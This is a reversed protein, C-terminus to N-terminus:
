LSKSLTSLSDNMVTYFGSQEVSLPLLNSFLQLNRVLQDKGSSKVAYFSVADGGCIVNNQIKWNGVKIWEPPLGELDELQFWKDYVIALVINKDRSLQGISQTTYTDEIKLKLVDISALGVLDLLHIDSLFAATGIDNVAVSANLYYKRLFLGMQYQQEYTNRCAIPINANSIRCRYQLPLMGHYLLVVTIFGVMVKKWTLPRWKSDKLIQATMYGIVFLGLAILYAEYRFFHGIKAFQMHILALIVFNILLVNELSWLTKKRILGLLLLIYSGIILALVHSALTMNKFFNLFFGFAGNNIPNIIFAQNSNFMEGVYVNKRLLISNPLWFWGNSISIYQYFILPVIGALALGISLKWRGRLFLFICGVFLIAYSEFRVMTVGITLMSLSTICLVDNSFGKEVITRSLFWIFLVILLIHLLHEMGCFIMAPFPTFLVIAILIIATLFKNSPVNNLLRNILVLISSALILNLILPMWERVGFISYMLALLITWLPSSSSSSFEYKTVGYMGFQSINKAMAMHIYADDLTYTLHGNTYHLSTLLCVFVIVFLILLAVILPWFDLIRTKVNITKL